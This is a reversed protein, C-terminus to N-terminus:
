SPIEFKRAKFDYTTTSGCAPCDAEFVWRVMQTPLPERPRVYTIAGCECEAVWPM